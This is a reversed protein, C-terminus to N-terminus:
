WGAPLSTQFWVCGGARHERGSFGFRESSCVPELDPKTSRGKRGLDEVAWRARYDEAAMSGKGDLNVYAGKENYGNADGFAAADDRVYSMGAKYDADYGAAFPCFECKWSSTDPEAPAEALAVPGLAFCITATLTKCFLNM